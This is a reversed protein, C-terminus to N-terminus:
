RRGADAGIATTSRLRKISCRKRSATYKKMERSLFEKKGHFDLAGFNEKKITPFFYFLSDSWYATEEDTQFLMISDIMAQFGPNVYTVDM